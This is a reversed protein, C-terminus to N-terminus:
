ERGGRRGRACWPVAENHYRLLHLLEQLAGVVDVAVEAVSGELVVDGDEHAENPASSPLSPRALPPLQGPCAWRADGGWRGLGMEGGRACCCVVACCLVGRWVASGRVVGRWAVGAGERGQLMQFLVKRPRLLTATSGYQWASDLNGDWM